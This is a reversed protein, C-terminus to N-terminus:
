NRKGAVISLSFREEEQRVLSKTKVVSGLVKVDRRRRGLKSSIEGRNCPLDVIWEANHGVRATWGSEAILGEHAVASSVGQRCVVPNLSRTDGAVLDRGAHQICGRNSISLFQEWRRIE